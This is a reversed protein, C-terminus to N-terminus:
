SKGAPDGRTATPGADHRAPHGVTPGGGGGGGCGAPGLALLAALAFASLKNVPTNKRFFM